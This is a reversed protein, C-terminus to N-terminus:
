VCNDKCDTLISITHNRQKVLTDEAEINKRTKNCVFVINDKEGDKASRRSSDIRVSLGVHKAYRNLHVLTDELSDFVM